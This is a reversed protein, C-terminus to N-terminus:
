FRLEFGWEFQEELSEEEIYYSSEVWYDGEIPVCESDDVNQGNFISLTISETEGPEIRTTTEIPPLEVKGGLNWCEEEVLMSELWENDDLLLIESSGSSATAADFVERKGTGLTAVEDSRTNTVSVEIQPPNTEFDENLVIAEFELFSVAEVSNVNEISIPEDNIADPEGSGSDSQPQKDEESEFVGLCGSLGISSVGAAALLERRNM